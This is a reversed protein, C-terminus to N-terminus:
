VARVMMGHGLTTCVLLVLTAAVCALLALLVPHIQEGYIPTLIAFVVETM